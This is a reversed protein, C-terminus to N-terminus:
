IEFADQAEETERMAKKKDWETGQGDVGPWGADIMIQRRKLQSENPSAPDDIQIVGGSVLDPLWNLVLYQEMCFDFFTKIRYTPMCKWGDKGYPDENEDYFDADFNGTWRPLNGDNKWLVVVGRRTDILLTYGDRRGEAFRLIHGPLREDTDDELPEVPPLKKVEECFQTDIYEIPSTSELICPVADPGTVLYPIHRLLKIVEETKGLGAFSEVTIQPWGTPPPRELIAMDEGHIRLMLEYFSTIGEVTEDHSYYEPLREM